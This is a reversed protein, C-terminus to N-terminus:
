ESGNENREDTPSFNEVPVDGQTPMNPVTPATQPAGRPTGDAAGQQGQAGNHPPMALSAPTISQGVIDSPDPNEPPEPPEPPPPPEPIDTIFAYVWCLKDAQEDSSILYRLDNQFIVCIHIKGIHEGPTTSVSTVGNQSVVFDPSDSTVELRADNLAITSQGGIAFVSSLSPIQYFGGEAIEVPNSTPNIYTEVFSPAYKASMSYPLITYVHSLPAGSAQQLQVSMEHSTISPMGSDSTVPVVNYSHGAQTVSLCEHGDDMCVIQYNVQSTATNYAVRYGISSVISEPPVMTLAESVESDESYVDNQPASPEYNSSSFISSDLLSRTCLRVHTEQGPTPYIDKDEIVGHTSVWDSDCDGTSWQYQFTTGPAGPYLLTASAHFQMTEPDPDVSMDNIKAEAPMLVQMHVPIANAVIQEDGSIVANSKALVLINWSAGSPMSLESPSDGYPVSFTGAPTQVEYHNTNSDRGSIMIHLKKDGTVYWKVGPRQLPIFPTASISISDPSRGVSNVAYSHFHYTRWKTLGGLEDNTSFSVSMAGNTNKCINSNTDEVVLCLETTDPLSFASQYITLNVVGSRADEYNLAPQAPRKPLAQYEITVAGFGKNQGEGATKARDTFIYKGVTMFGTDESAAAITFKLEGFAGASCNVKADQVPACEISAGDQMGYYYQDLHRQVTQTVNVTPPDQGERITIKESHLPLEINAVKMTALVKFLWSVETSAFGEISVQIPYSALEKANQPVAVTITQGACSVVLVEASCNLNLADVESSAHGYWKLFKRADIQVTAKPEAGNLQPNKLLQPPSNEPIINIQFSILVNRSNQDDFRAEVSCIDKTLTDVEAGAAMQGPTYSINGNEINCSSQPRLKDHVVNDEVILRMDEMQDVEEFVNINLTDGVNVQMVNHNRRNPVVTSLSPARIVGFSQLTRSEFPAEIKVVLTQPTNRMQGKLIGSSYDLSNGDNLMNFGSISLDDVNQTWSINDTIDSEFFKRQKIDSNKVFYDEFGPYVPVTPEDTAIAIVKQTYEGIVDGDEFDPSTGTSLVQATVEWVSRAGAQGVIVSFNQLEQEDTIEQLPDQVRAGTPPLLKASTIQARTGAPLLDNDLPNIRIRKDPNPAAFLYDNFPVAQQNSDITQVTFTAQAQNVGDSLTYTGLIQTPVDVSSTVILTDLGNGIQVSANGSTVAANTIFVNDGDRDLMRDSPLELEATGGVNAVSRLAISEPAYSQTGILHVNLKGVARRTDSHGRVFVYYDLQVYTDNSQTPAVYKIKSGNTYLLGKTPVEEEPTSYRPDVLLIEGPAAIDNQLVDVDISAGLHVAVQDPSAIPAMNYENTTIMVHLGVNVDYQAGQRTDNVHLLLSIAGADYVGNTSADYNTVYGSIRIRHSDVINAELDAINAGAVERPLVTAGTLIYSDRLSASAMTDIDQVMDNQDGIFVTRPTFGGNRVQNDTVLLKIVGQNTSGLVAFKVEYTGVSSATISMKTGSIDMSAAVNEPVEVLSIDYYGAAGHISEDLDVVVRQNPRATLAIQDFYIPAADFVEFRLTSRTSLGLTDSVNIAVTVQQGPEVNLAQFSLRGDPSAVVQGGSSSDSTLILDDGDPDVWGNLADVTATAPYKAVKLHGDPVTNGIRKPPHNPETYPHIRVNFSMPIICPGSENTGGDTVNVTINASGSTAPSNVLNLAVAKGNEIIRFDGLAPNDSVVDGVITLVDNKNADLVGRLVPIFNDRGPRAGFQADEAKPAVPCYNTSADEPTSSEDNDSTLKTNWANLTSPIVKWTGDTEVWVAGSDTANILAGGPIERVSFAATNGVVASSGELLTLEGCTYVYVADLAQYVSYFQRSGDECHWRVFRTRASDVTDIDLAYVSSFNGNSYSMIENPTTIIIPSDDNSYSLHSGKPVTIPDGSGGWVTADEGGASEYRFAFDQSGFAVEFTDLSYDVPQEPIGERLITKQYDPATFKVVQKSENYATVDGSASINGALYKEGDENVKKVNAGTSIYPAKGIFLNGSPSLLLIRNESQNLVNANEPLTITDDAPLGTVDRPIAPDIKFAKGGSALAGRENWEVVTSSRFGTTDSINQKANLELDKLNVRGYLGSKSNLVWSTTPELDPNSSSAKPTFSYIAVAAGAVVVLALIKILFRRV